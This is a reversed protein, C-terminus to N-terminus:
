VSICDVYGSNYAHCIERCHSKDRAHDNPCFEGNRNCWCQCHGGSVYKLDHIDLEEKM